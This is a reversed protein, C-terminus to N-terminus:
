PREQPCSPLRAAAPRSPPLWPWPWLFFPSAIDNIGSFVEYEEITTFLLSNGTGNPPPRFHDRGLLLRGAAIRKRWLDAEARAERAQALAHDQNKRWENILRANVVVALAEDPM